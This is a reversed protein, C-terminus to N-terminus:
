VGLCVETVTFNQDVLIRKINFMESWLVSTVCVKRLLAM